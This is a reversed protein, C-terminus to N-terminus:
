PLCQEYISQVVDNNIDFYFTTYGNNLLNKQITELFTKTDMSVDATNQEGDPGVGCSYSKTNDNVSVERIKESQNIFFETIGPLFKPNHSLIDISLFTIKNKLFISKIEAPTNTWKESVNSLEDNNIPTTSGINNKDALNKKLAENEKVLESNQKKLDQVQANLNNIQEQLVSIPQNPEFNDIIPKRSLSCGAALLALIPFLVFIKKM